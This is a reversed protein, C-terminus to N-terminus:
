KYGLAVCLRETLYGFLACVPLTFVWAWLIREVVTWKVAGFRKVAGVGM